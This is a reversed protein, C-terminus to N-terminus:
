VTDRAIRLCRISLLPVAITVISVHQLAEPLVAEAVSAHLPLPSLM